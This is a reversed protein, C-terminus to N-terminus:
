EKKEESKRYIVALHGITQVLKADREECIQHIMTRRESKDKANVRIKILEHTLLAQEIELQVADTLGQNGIIVVPKLHHALGRLRQKFQTSIMARM